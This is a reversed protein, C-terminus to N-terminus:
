IVDPMGISYAFTEEYFRSVLAFAPHGNVKIRGHWYKFIEPNESSGELMDSSFSDFLTVTEKLNQEPHPLNNSASSISGKFPEKYENFYIGRAIKEFYLFAQKANIKFGITRKGNLTAEFSNEMLDNFLGRHGERKLRTLTKQTFVQQSIDTENGAQVVFRFREDLMSLEGNHKPCSPVTILNKRHGEPFLNFPPVHERSKKTVPTGCWYCIKQNM